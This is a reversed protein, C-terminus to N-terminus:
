DLAKCYFGYDNVLAEIQETQISDAQVRLIRDCDDLDVNIYTGPLQKKLWEILLIAQATGPINTKFIEIM